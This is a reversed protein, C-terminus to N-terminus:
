ALTGTTAEFDFSWLIGQDSQAQELNDYSCNTLTLVLTSADDLNTFALTLTKLVITNAQVNVSPPAYLSIKGNIAEFHEIIAFPARVFSSPTVGPVHTVLSINQNVSVSLTRVPFAAGDNLVAEYSMYPQTLLVAPNLSTLNTTGLGMGSMSATLPNHRDGTDLNLELSGVKCDQIQDASSVPTGADDKYGLGLTFYPLLGSARFARLLMPKQLSTVSGFAMRWDSSTTGGKVGIRNASGPGRFNRNDSHKTNSVRCDGLVTAPTVATGLVSQASVLAVANRLVLPEGSAVIPM